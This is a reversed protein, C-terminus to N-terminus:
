KPKIHVSHHSRRITFAKESLQPLHFAAFRTTTHPDDRLPRASPAFGKKPPLDKKPPALGKKPFAIGKQLYMRLLFIDKLHPRQGRYLALPQLTKIKNARSGSRSQLL